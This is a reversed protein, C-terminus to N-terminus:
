KKRMKVKAEVEFAGNYWGSGKEKRTIDPTAKATEFTGGHEDGDIDEFVITVDTPADFVSKNLEFLGKNDTYLTDYEYWDNQDYYVHTTNAYHRHQTVAVRIGEIPKGSQDTVAGIAKFDAHPQGYMVMMNDINVEKNCSAFGLLGLVAAALQKWIKKILNDKMKTWNFYDDKLNRRVRFRADVSLLYLLERQFGHQLLADFSDRGTREQEM